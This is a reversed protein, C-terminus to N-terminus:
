RSRSLGYRHMKDNLTRRPLNLAEMVASINGEQEDLARTIQAREFDAVQDALPRRRSFPKETRNILCRIDAQEDLRALTYREAINKLERVNGPWDHAYLAAFGDSSIPRALCNFQSEAFTVFHKFLMPIDEMRERLPPIFIEITNLRYYLDDRFRGADVAQKICENAASVVRVDINLPDNTGLKQITQTELARLMKVQMDFPLGTIEDLFLTGQDAHQFAGLRSKDAGTFAGKVHGFFESEFLDKPIGGCNIPHFVHDARAGLEHLARAVLEKGAGTEGHILVNVNITALHAIDARLSQMAASEGILYRSLGISRALQDKLHRNELVLKRKSLARNVTETLKVPSFPKELFDYASRKMADVAMPVDGHGTILIVPIDGDRQKIADLLEIGDMNPMKVDSVVVGSFFPDILDLASRADGFSSVDFNSLSLWQELSRRMDKEDDILVVQVSM